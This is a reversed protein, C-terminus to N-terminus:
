LLWKIVDKAGDEAQNLTGELGSVSGSSGDRIGLYMYKAELSTYPSVPGPGEQPVGVTQKLLLYAEVRRTEWASGYLDHTEWRARFYDAAIAMNSDYYNSPEQRQDRLYEFAKEVDGGNLDMAFQIYAEVMSENLPTWKTAGEGFLVDGIELTSQGPDVITIMGGHSCHLRSTQTLLPVECINAMVSAADVSWLSPTDPQCKGRGRCTGFSHINVGDSNDNITAVLECASSFTVDLGHPVSLHSPKSGKTCMLTAGNIVVLPGSV